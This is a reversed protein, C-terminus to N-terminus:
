DEIIIRADFPNKTMTMNDGGFDQMICWLQNTYYGEEDLTLTFPKKQYNPNLRKRREEFEYHKDKLVEIGEATLKVKATRNINFEM